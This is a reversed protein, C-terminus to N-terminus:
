FFLQSPVTSENTIALQEIIELGIRGKKIRHSIMLAASTCVSRHAGQNGLLWCLVSAEREIDSRLGHLIM